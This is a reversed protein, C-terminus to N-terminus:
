GELWEIPVLKKGERWEEVLHVGEVGGWVNEAAHDLVIIQIKGGSQKVTSTM